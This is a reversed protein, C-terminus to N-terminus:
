IWGRARYLWSGLTEYLVSGAARLRDRPSDLAGWSVTTARAPVCTVVFGVREFTACARRTHSPSTVVAVRRWGSDAAVRAVLLAEERTTHPLGVIVHAIGPAALAVLFRQDADSTVVTDADPRTVRTTILTSVGHQRAVSLATLLRDQGMASLVHDDTLRASLAVVADVGEAPWADARVLAHAPARIVPTYAVVLLAAPLAGAAWWLWRRLATAGVLAAVVVIVALGWWRSLHSPIPFDLEALALYAFLALTAAAAAGRLRPWDVAALRDM